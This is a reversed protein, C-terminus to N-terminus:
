EQFKRVASQTISGYFGTIYQEDLFGKKSLAKQINRIGEFARSDFNEEKSTAYSDLDDLNIKKKAEETDADPNTVKITKKKGTKSKMLKDLCFKAVIEKSSKKKISSAEHNGIEVKADGDFHKGKIILKLRSSCSKNNDEYQYAKWSDIQAKESDDDDSSGEETEAVSGFESVGYYSAHSISFSCEGESVVCTDEQEWGDSGGDSRSFVYLTQGDYSSGVIFTITVPNSFSLTVGPIGFRIKNILRSNNSEVKEIYLNNVDFTGGGYKTVRTEEFFSFGFADELSSYVYGEPFFMFEVAHKDSGWWYIDYSNDSSIRLGNTWTITQNKGGLTASAAYDYDGETMATSIPFSWNGDSDFTSVTQISGGEVLVTVTISGVDDSNVSGRITPTTDSTELAYAKFDSLAAKAERPSFFFCGSFIILALLLFYKKNKM